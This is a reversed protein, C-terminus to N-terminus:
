DGGRRGPSSNEDVVFDLPSEDMRASEDKTELWFIKAVTIATHKQPSETGEACLRACSPILTLTEGVLALM